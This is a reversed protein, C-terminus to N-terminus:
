IPGVYRAAVEAPFRQRARGQCQPWWVAGELDLKDLMPVWRPRPGSGHTGKGLRVHIKGFPPVPASNSQGPPAM